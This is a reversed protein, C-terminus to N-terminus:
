SCHDTRGDRQTPPMTETPPAVSTVRETGDPAVKEILWCVGKGIGNVGREVLNHRRIFTVTANWSYVALEKAKELIRHERDLQQAKDWAQRAAQKSQVVVHHQADIARAKAQVSLAVEGVARATDGVLHGPKHEAAYAGGFGLLLGLIPGGVLLGLIGSGVGAATVINTPVAPENSDTASESTAIAEIVGHHVPTYYTDHYAPPATPLPPLSSSVFLADARVLPEREEVRHSSSSSASSFGSDLFSSKM